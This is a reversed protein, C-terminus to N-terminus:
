TIPVKIDQAARVLEVHQIATVTLPVELMPDVPNHIPSRELPVLRVGVAPGRHLGQTVAFYLPPRLRAVADIM